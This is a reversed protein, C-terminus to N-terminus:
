VGQMVAWRRASAVFDEVCRIGALDEPRVNVAVNYTVHGGAMGTAGGAAVGALQAQPVRPASVALADSTLGALRSAAGVAASASRSIGDAMAEGISLGSYLVWGKGSFPGEKAPSFPFLNRISGLVGSIQDKVWGVAGSIGNWLGELLSRGSDVLLSGLDGLASLIKGPLSAVLDVAAGIGTSVGNKIGNWASSVVGTLSNWAGTFISKIAGLVSSIIGKVTNIAGRVLGTIVGWVGALIGRMGEWVGGWDGKVVAMVTNIVAQIASLAPSLVGMISTLVTQVVPLLSQIIPVLFGALQTILPAIAAVVTAILGGIQAIIPMLATLVNQIVPLISVVLQNFIPVLAGITATLAPMVSSILNGLITVIQQIFPALASVAQTLTGALMTVVPALANGLQVAVGSLIGFVQQFAPALAQVAKGVEQFATSLAARLSASNAVMAGILGVVAGVPGTLGSFAGGIVPLGQLLPGIFAGVVPAAGALVSTFSSLGGSSFAEGIKQGLSGIKEMIPAIFDNVAGILGTLMPKMGNLMDSLGGVVTAQLNGIAGEFTATSKAAEVAVKDFGLELLANNFEEATIQGKAMADRFNGTYAGAKSLAEQIKGSAGPIADSLQNWNETTLKGQGATQTLVMGVSKFTDANGGAIANLNGAAEALRDFNPVSNAALQATVNQIDGLDYVTQDAYKRASASLKDIQSGDMGAFKLTSKFKDTADSAAIAEPIFRAIGATVAGIGAVGIASITKFAGSFTRGVASAAHSAGSVLGGFINGLGGAASKIRGFAGTFPGVVRGAVSGAVGAIKSLGATALSTGKDFARGIGGGVPALAGTIKSGLTSFPATLKSALGSTLGSLRKSTSAASTTFAKSFAGASSQGISAVQKVRAGASQAFGAMKSSAVTAAGSWGAQFNKFAGRNTLRKMASGVGASIKKNWGSTAKDMVPNLERAIRGAVGKLSPVIQVYAAALETM